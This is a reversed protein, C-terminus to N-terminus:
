NSLYLSCFPRVRGSRNSGLVFIPSLNVDEVKKYYGNIEIKIKKLKEIVLRNIEVGIPRLISM